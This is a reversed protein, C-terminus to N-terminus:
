TSASYIGWAYALIAAIFGVAMSLSFVDQQTSVFREGSLWSFGIAILGLFSSIQWTRNKSKYGQVCLAIAGVLLLTGIIIHAMVLPQTKAYEWMVRADGSTPFAAYLNTAMGLVYQVGLGIM